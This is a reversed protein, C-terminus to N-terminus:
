SSAKQCPWKDDRGEKLLMRALVVLFGSSFFLPSVGRRFHLANPLFTKVTKVEEKFLQPPLFVMAMTAMIQAQWRGPMERFFKGSTIVGGLWNQVWQLWTEFASPYEVVGTEDATDNWTNVWAKKQYPFWFWESYYDNTARAEFDAQAAALQTAPHTKQLALPVDSPNLPPIALSIDPKFPRTLAYTMKNIELTVHTVIGLLGFCGAAASLQAPDSITCHIGNADVYEIARVQDNVTKHLRGGGHCIPGNVGGITVRFM